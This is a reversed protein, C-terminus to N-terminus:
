PVGYRKVFTSTVSALPDSLRPLVQQWLAAPVGGYAAEALSGAIAAQTDADGGLSIALRVASEVSDSDMFAIIAESVSGQCTVDFSYSPRITEVTRDLDYAFRQALEARVTAKDAGHRLMWIALATAQAGADGFPHDHTVAASDHALALCEAESTAVWAVPSVRMASGNGFSNYPGGDDVRLWRRFAGGYGAYPYQRGITRYAAAFDGDTLLAHATAVTLVTDDTFCSGESLLPFETSKTHAREYVSGVIDGVIAGRMIQHTETTLPASRAHRPQLSWTEPQVVTARM